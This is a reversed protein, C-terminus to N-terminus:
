SLVGGHCELGFGGAPVGGGVAVVAAGADLDGGVEGGGREGAAGALREGLM